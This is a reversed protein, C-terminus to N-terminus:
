TRKRAKYFIGKRVKNPSHNGRQQTKTLCYGEFHLGHCTRCQKNFAFCDAKKKGHKKKKKALKLTLNSKSILNRREEPSKMGKILQM